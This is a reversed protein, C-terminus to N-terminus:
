TIFMKSNMNEHSIQVVDIEPVFQWMETISKGMNDVVCQSITPKIEHIIKQAEYHHIMGLRLAAGVVSVVFGHLMALASKEKEIGMSSSVIAFAVPYVGSAEGNNIADQYFNLVKNEKIFSSVGRVLQIGSRTSSDRTEKVLKMFFINQDVNIIEPLNSKQALDYANSHAVCDAPGIQYKIFIKILDCLEDSNKIKKNFFLFEIGSSTAFLGTPFFSDSLQMM